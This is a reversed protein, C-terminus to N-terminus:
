QGYGPREYRNTSSASLNLTQGAFVYEFTTKRAASVKVIMTGSSGAPDSVGCYNHTDPAMVLAVCVDSLSLVGGSQQVVRQAVADEWAGNPPSTAAAPAVTPSSSACAALCDLTAGFRAGERVAATMTIQRNYAEGGTFIGMLLAMLLPFILAMEVLSAGSESRAVM